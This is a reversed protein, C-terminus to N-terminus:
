ETKKIKSRISQRWRDSEDYKLELLEIGNLECWDRKYQDNKRYELFGYATKHFHSSFSYHQEGHVEIALRAIHIYFDFYLQKNRFIKIPAEEIWNLIPYDEKLIKRVIEHLSSRKEQENGKHLIWNYQHGDLTKVQM